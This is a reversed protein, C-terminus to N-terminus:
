RPPLGRNLPPPPQGGGDPPQQPPIQGSGQQMQNPPSLKIVESGKFCGITYPYEQTLHYHYMEAEKGDWLIKHTHGHCEDLDNNTIERGEADFKGYIGFGDLAFGTHGHNEKQDLICDSPGHYHYQGQQQPHGGCKDQVENAVADRGQADLGNFFPVGSTMVGIIGGPVCSPNSALQPNQPLTLTIQQARVRNPNNDYKYAPDSQAIPFTGTKHNIPLSNGSFIRKGNELKSDFFSNDWKVDGEVSVKKTLDWSQGNIWAKSGQAGGGNFQTQCSFIHGKQPSTSVKGDGLPLSKPDLSQSQATKSDSEGTLNDLFPLGQGGQQTTITYAGAAGVITLILLACAAIAANGNQGIV